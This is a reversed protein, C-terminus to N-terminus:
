WATFSASGPSAGPVPRARACSAHGDIGKVAGHHLAAAVQVKGDLERETPKRDTEAYLSKVVAIKAKEFTIKLVVGELAILLEADAGGSRGGGGTLTRTACRM